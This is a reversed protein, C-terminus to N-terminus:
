YDVGEDAEDEQSIVGRRELEDLLTKTLLQNCRYWPKGLQQQKYAELSFERVVARLVSKHKSSVETNKNVLNAHEFAREVVEEVALGTGQHVDWEQLWARLMFLNLNHELKAFRDYHEVDLSDRVEVIRAWLHVAESGLAEPDEGREAENHGLQERFGDWIQVLGSESWLIGVIDFLLRGADGADVGVSELATLWGPGFMGARDAYLETPDASM